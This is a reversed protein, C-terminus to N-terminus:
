REWRQRQVTKSMAEGEITISARWEKLSPLAASATPDRAAYVRASEQGGRTVVLQEGEEVRRIWEDFQSQMEDVPVRTEPM